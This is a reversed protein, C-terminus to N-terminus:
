TGIARGIMLDNRPPVDNQVSAPREPTRDLM